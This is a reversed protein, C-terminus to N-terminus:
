FPVDADSHVPKPKEAKGMRQKEEAFLKEALYFSHPEESQRFFLVDARRSRWAACSRAKECRSCCFCHLPRKLVPCAVLMRRAHAMEAATPEDDAVDPKLNGGDMKTSSTSSTSSLGEGVLTKDRGAVKKSAPRAPCGNEGLPKINREQQSTFVDLWSMVVVVGLSFLTAAGADM